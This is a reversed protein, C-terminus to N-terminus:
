DKKSKKRGGDEVAELLEQGTIQIEYYEKPTGFLSHIDNKMGLFYKEPSKYWTEGIPGEYLNEALRLKILNDNSLLVDSPSFIDEYAAPEGLFAYAYGLLQTAALYYSTLEEIRDYQETTKSLFDKDKAIQGLIGWDSSSVIDMDELIGEIAAEIKGRAVNLETIANTALLRRTEQDKADRMQMMQQHMGRISGLIDRDHGEQLAIVRSRVDDIVSSLQALQQQLAIASVSPGLDVKAAKGIRVLGAISHKKNVLVGINEGTKSDTMFDLLGNKMQPELDKPIRALYVNEKKVVQLINKRISESALADSLFRLIKGATLESLATTIKEKLQVPLAATEAAALDGRSLVQLENEESSGIDKKVYANNAIPTIRESEM